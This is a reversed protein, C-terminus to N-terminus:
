NFQRQHEHDLIMAVGIVSGIIDARRSILFARIARPAPHQLCCLNKDGETSTGGCVIMASDRSCVNIVSTFKRTLQGRKTEIDIEVPFVHVRPRSYGAPAGGVRFILERLRDNSKPCGANSAGWTVGSVSKLASRARWAKQLADGYLMDNFRDREEEDKTVINAAHHTRRRARRPHPVLGRDTALVFKYNGNPERGDNRVDGSRICQTCHLVNGVLTPQTATTVSGSISADRAAAATPAAPGPRSRPAPSRFSRKQLRNSKSANRADPATDSFRTGGCRPLGHPPCFSRGCHRIPVSNGDRSREHGDM